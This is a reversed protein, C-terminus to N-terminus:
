VTLSVVTANPLRQPWYRINSILGYMQQAGNSNNGIGLAVGFIVNSATADTESLTGNRALAGGIAGYAMAYNEFTNLTATAADLVIVAAGTGYVGIVHDNGSEPARLALRNNDNDPTPAFIQARGGVLNTFAVKAFITGSSANLSTMPFTMVDANRTGAAPIPSTAMAGAEFQNCDVDLADTSTNIQIGYAVNLENDNLEVRTFTSSNILATIDLTATGHKLIVTGTGTVRKVWCSYTRSSAAAVLTQLITANAGGATIRTCSSGVGDIGTSTQATTMTVAVWAAQTMDRPNLALQTAVSEPFYGGVTSVATSAGSYGFRPSGSAVDLKWLGTSLKAAAATARTFTATAGGMIETTSVVGGGLDRFPLQFSSKLTNSQLIPIM